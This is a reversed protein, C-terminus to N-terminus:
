LERLVTLPSQIVVRRTGFYGALGILVGGALPAALWVPWKFSYELEFARTYLLYAILETGIAALFGALVGLVAFEAFHAARLQRRSAGLVRLLAGEHFREDLSAALAAFLVAFGAALVFLLVLEVAATVQGLIVRVQALVQDMDLVTVAPFARVLATLLSKHDPALHFSTLYTAPFDELAGPPFIMYFNPHFSDWQVSRISAVRARLAEGAISFTLEDDLEIGLKKALKEEVSVRKGPSPTEWWTGRVLRNDPPVSGTWSLNLERQLAENNSEEKTVAQTVPKGNIKSLRGRVMPYLASTQIRNTAFFRQMAAVDQPLINFAFHNPTDPPLQTQWTSLLDTRLLAIVAMAMLALGFALIQGISTRTRRWLNNLGFRWAVGVRQPMRQSLTLLAGALAALAGAAALSGALVGATLLLSGTYRWMLVLVAAAASGYVIWASPPLPALERRLVRLPPVHKLRLLPPMAFGALAILGTFFGFAVPAMGAPPLGAPRLDKLLYFIAEQALWGLACGLASAALGLLLFQPAFLAVIDRQTAGFCRLMASVDFHRASYRRAGMAIAVGALIVALLSTLGLYREARGLARGISSNGDRVDLLRHNAGLRPALWTQYRALDADTGAFLYSYNVRSGPQVVGTAAVDASPILVRPAFTFFSGARGPEYSLVRTVSFAAGGIEIRGGVTLGLAQLVRPEVWATGPAPIDSTKTDPAYLAPATRLAGRPPYGAGVAMVSALQLKEGQVVVSTFELTQAQRLGQGAAQKLWSSPVPEPSTLRLDAGLLDASQYTMARNLRDSFFGIATVAGVAIVVAAALIRLEGARWDRVLLRLALRFNKLGRM